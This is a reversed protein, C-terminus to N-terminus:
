HFCRQYLLVQRRIKRENKARLPVVVKNQLGNTDSSGKEGRADNKASPEVALVPQCSDRTRVLSFLQSFCAGYGKDDQFRKIGSATKVTLAAKKSEAVCNKFKSRLQGITFTFEM